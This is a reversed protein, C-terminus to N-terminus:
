AKEKALAILDRLVENSIERVRATSDRVERLMEYHEAETM